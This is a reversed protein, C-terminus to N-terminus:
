GTLLLGFPVHLDGLEPALAQGVLDLQAIALDLIAAAADVLEATAHLKAQLLELQLARPPPHRVCTHGRSRAEARGEGSASRPQGERRADQAGLGTSSRRTTHVEVQIRKEQRLSDAHWAQGPPMSIVGITRASAHGHSFSENLAEIPIPRSELVAIRFQELGNEVGQHSIPKVLTSLKNGGVGGGRIHALQASKDTLLFPHPLHPFLMEVARVEFDISSAWIEWCVPIM